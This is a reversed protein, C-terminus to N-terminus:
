EEISLDLDPCSLSIELPSPSSVNCKTVSLRDRGASNPSLHKFFQCVRIERWFACIKRRKSFFQTPLTHAKRFAPSDVLQSTAREWGDLSSSSDTEPRKTWANFGKRRQWVVAWKGKEWLSLNWKIFAFLGVQGLSCKVSPRKIWSCWCFTCGRVPFPFCIAGRGKRRVIFGILALFCKVWLSSVLLCLLFM